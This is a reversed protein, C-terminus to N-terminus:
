IPIKERKKRGLWIEIIAKTLSISTFMSCLIGITLTVSFGKVAGSGFIYLLLAGIITTVNSDIITPVARDYGKAIAAGPSAGSRIEDKMREYILVNADVAMGITLAVGAIGPLTMTAEMVAMIAILLIVNFFVAASAIVGFLSYTYIMFLCVALIGIIAAQSGMKVSDAGLEPGITRKEVIDLKAPLAGSRLMLSLDSASQANFSGTIQGNMGIKEQITPASIIKDDILIALRNGINKMTAKEFKKGGERNFAFSVVWRGHQDTMPQANVLYEGSLVIDKSVAYYMNDDKNQMIMQKSALYSGRAIDYSEYPGSEVFSFSLKATQGLMKTVRDGDFVGPLQLVIKNVGQTQIVPELTGSEDIRKRIVEMSKQTANFILSEKFEETLVIKCTDGDHAIDMMKIYDEFGFNKKVISKVIDMDKENKVRFTIRTLDQDNKFEYVAIKEARITSKISDQLSELKEKIVEKDDVELLLHMGGKLDLGLRIKNLNEFNESFNPMIFVIGLICILFVWLHKKKM